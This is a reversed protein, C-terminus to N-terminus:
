NALDELDSDVGKTKNTQGATKEQEEYDALLNNSTHQRDKLSHDLLQNDDYDKSLNVDQDSGGGESLNNDAV